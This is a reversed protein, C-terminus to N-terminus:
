FQWGARVVWPSNHIPTRGKWTLNRLATVTFASSNLIPFNVGGGLFAAQHWNREIENTENAELALGNMSELETQGFLITKRPQYRVYARGGYQTRIQGELKSLQYSPGVGVLFRNDALKKTVIPSFDLQFNRGLSLGINGELKFKLADLKKQAAEQAKSKLKEEGYDVTQRLAKMIGMRFIWPSPTQESLENLKNGQWLMDRLLSFEISTVEGIPFNYGAGLLLSTQLTKEPNTTTNEEQTQKENVRMGMFEVQAFPFWENPQLKTYLRGGMAQQNAETDQNTPNDQYRHRLSIGGGISLYDNLDFEVNPSLDISQAEKFSGGIVGGVKIKELFKLKTLDLGTWADEGKQQGKERLQEPLQTLKNLQGIPTSMGFRVVWPQQDLGQIQEANVDYLIAINISNQKSLKLNYGGGILIGHHWSRQQSLSDKAGKTLSYEAQLYPLYNKPNWRYFLNGGVNLENNSLDLSDFTNALNYQANIGAGLMMYKSFQWILNPSLIAQSNSASVNGEFYFLDSFNHKLLTDQNFRPSKFSDQVKDGTPLKPLDQGQLKPAQLLLVGLVVFFVQQLINCCNLYM